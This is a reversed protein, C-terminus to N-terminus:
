FGSTKRRVNICGVWSPKTVQVGGATQRPSNRATGTVVTPALPALSREPTQGPRADM